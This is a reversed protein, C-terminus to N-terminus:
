SNKEILEELRKKEVLIKLTNANTISSQLLQSSIVKLESYGDVDKKNQQSLNNRIEAKTNLNPKNSNSFDVIVGIVYLDSKLAIYAAARNVFDSFDDM